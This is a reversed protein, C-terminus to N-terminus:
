QMLTQGELPGHWWLRKATDTSGIVADYSMWKAHGDAFGINLGENHRRAIQLKLDDREPLCHLCWNRLYDAWYGSTEFWVCMEAPYPLEVIQLPRGWRKRDEWGPATGDYNGKWDSRYPYHQECTVFAVEVYVWNGDPWDELRGFGPAYIWSKDSGVQSPCTLFDWNRYYPYLLTYHWRLSGSWLTMTFPFRDDYDQAYMLWALTLQKCNSLCTTQRAKERARAFVPFLIAALIAIIAIVVLLEILTFGRRRM